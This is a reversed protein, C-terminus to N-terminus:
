GTPEAFRMKGLAERGDIGAMLLPEVGGECEIELREVVHL